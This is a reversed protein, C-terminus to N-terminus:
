RAEPFHCRLTFRQQFFRELLRAQQDRRDLGADFGLVRQGTLQLELAGFVLAQGIDRVDDAQAYDGEVDVVHVLHGGGHLAQERYVPLIGHVLALDVFDVAEAVQGQM